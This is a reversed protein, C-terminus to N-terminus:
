CAGAQHAGYTAESKTFKEGSDSSLQEILGNCSFGSMGLYQKASKVAQENWDVNLSDVAATADAVDYGEGADSSLQEILGARSFGSMSLYQTASRVANGQPGTLSPTDPEEVQGAQTVVPQQIQVPEQLQAPAGSAVDPSTGTSKDDGVIAGIVALGVFIGVVGLCGVGVIKGMGSKKREDSM